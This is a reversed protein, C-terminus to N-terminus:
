NVSEAPIFFPFLIRSCALVACDVKLRERGERTTLPQPNPPLGDHITVIKRAPIGISRLEHKVYDSIAVVRVASRTAFRDGLAHRCQLYPRLWPQRVTQPAYGFQRWSGHLTAIWPIRQSPAVRHCIVNTLPLHSHILDPPHTQLSRELGHTLGKWRASRSYSAVNQIETPLEMAQAQASAAGAEFVHVLVDHGRRQQEQALHLCM